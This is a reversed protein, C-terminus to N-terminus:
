SITITYNGAVLKNDSRYCRYVNNNLDPKRYETVPVDFGGSTVKSVAM